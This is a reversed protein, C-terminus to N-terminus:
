NAKYTGVVPMVLVLNDAHPADDMEVTLDMGFPHGYHDGHESEPIGTLDYVKGLYAVYAPRGDIGDFKELEEKDFVKM